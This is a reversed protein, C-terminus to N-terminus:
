RVGFLTIDVDVDAPAGNSTITVRKLVDDVHEFGYDGQGVAGEMPTVVATCEREDVARDLTLELVGASVRKFARVGRNLALEPVIGNHVKVQLLISPNWSM